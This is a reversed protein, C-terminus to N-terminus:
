TPMTWFPEDEKESPVLGPFIANLLTWRVSKSLYMPKSVLRGDHFNCHQWYYRVVFITTMLVVVILRYPMVHVIFSIASTKPQRQFEEIIKDDELVGVDSTEYLPFSECAKLLHKVSISQVASTMLEDIELLFGLAVSNVIMDDISSSEMLFTTGTSATLVFVVCKPLFVLTFNAIKWPVSMGAIKVQVQDLWKEAPDREDPHQDGLLVWHENQNPVYYLLRLMDVLLDLEQAISLMFVFCCLLRCRYSEVGYEGPDSHHMIEAEKGPFLAKLSSTVYNRTVWDTYSYMRSAIISTGGPGIGGPGERSADMGVGFDCLFMQGAFGDIVNEEKSMYLLLTCVVGISMFLYIYARIAKVTIERPWGLSRAVQPLLMAAGYVSSQEVGVKGSELVKLGGYIKAKALELEYEQLSMHRRLCAAQRCEARGGAGNEAFTNVTATLMPTYNSSSDQKSSVDQKPADDVEAEESLKSNNPPM